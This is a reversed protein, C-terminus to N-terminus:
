ESPPNLIHNHHFYLINFGRMTVERPSIHNGERVGPGDQPLVLHLHPFHGGGPDYLVGVFCSSNSLFFSSIVNIVKLVGEWTDSDDESKERQRIDTSMTKSM